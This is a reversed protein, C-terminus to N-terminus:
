RQLRGVRRTKDVGARAKAELRRAPRRVREEADVVDQQVGREVFSTADNVVPAHVAVRRVM